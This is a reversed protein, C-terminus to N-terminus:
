INQRSQRITWDNVNYYRDSPTNMAKRQYNFVSGRTIYLFNPQYLSVAPADNVWANLFPRLKILRLAPDSRTRAGELASDATNSKYESLNLHGASTISAQSSDWYAFVDPDVGINIGYLLIDYDHAAIISGQLEDADYYQVNIKVGVKQWQKQLDQAVAKYQPTNQSRMILQLPQGDKSRFGDAGLKWGALDLLQNAHAEDFGPETIQSDYGLQGHLLPSDVQNVPESFITKFDARNIGSVLARRVDINSLASRSNNFFAMVATTLPTNYVVVSKEHSLDTPLGELGALANIQKNKFASLAHKEDIYATLGFGDLKPKGAFYKQNVAFTLRQQLDIGPTGSLELYKWTFPGTGVPSTNFSASRLQLPPIKELLHAPVIGNTLAYPFSSLATPLDFNVTYSDQKTVKIDKWSTYLPSQANPNKITNYTFLVDDANFSKGDHWNVNHKLRVVYHTPAPGQSWSQALDGTLQNNTDYKLLSSFILRSVSRDVKSSAYMPNANTFTGIIGEAYIGGPAPKLTQYYSSLARTQLVSAVTLVIFLLVWLLVFRKVSFLRDFRRLLLKEIQQDAQQSLELAGQRRLRIVRRFRRRKGEKAM